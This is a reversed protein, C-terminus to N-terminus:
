PKGRIGAVDTIPVDDMAAYDEAQEIIDHVVDLHGGPFAMHGSWPDGTKEARKIFLMDPGNAGERLIIAVAAQRTDQRPQFTEPEHAALRQEIFNM